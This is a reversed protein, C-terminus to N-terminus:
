QTIAIRTSKLPSKSRSYLSGGMCFDVPLSEIRDDVERAICGACAIQLDKGRLSAASNITDRRKRRLMCAVARMYTVRVRVTFMGQCFISPPVAAQPAMNGPRTGSTGSVCTFERTRSLFVSLILFLFPSFPFFLFIFPFRSFPCYNRHFILQMAAIHWPLIRRRSTPSPPALTACRCRCRAPTYRGERPFACSRPHRLTSAFFLLSTLTHFPLSSLTLSLSLSFSLTPRYHLVFLPTVIACASTPEADVRRGPLV